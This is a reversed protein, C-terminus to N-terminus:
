SRYVRGGDQGVLSMRDNDVDPFRRIILPSFPDPPNVYFHHAHVHPEVDRKEHERLGVIATESYNYSGQLIPDREIAAAVEIAKNVEGIAKSRNDYLSDKIVANFIIVENSGGNDDPSILKFVPTDDQGMVVDQYIAEATPPEPHDGWHYITSGAAMQFWPRNINDLYVDGSLAQQLAIAEKQSMKMIRDPIKAPAQPHPKFPPPDYGWPKPKYDQYTRNATYDSRARVLFPLFKPRNLLANANTKPLRTLTTPLVNFYNRVKSAWVPLCTPFVTKWGGCLKAAFFIEEPTRGIWYQYHRLKALNLPTTTM